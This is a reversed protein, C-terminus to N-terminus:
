FNILYHFSNRLAHRPVGALLALPFFFFSPAAAAAARVCMTSRSGNAFSTFTALNVRSFPAVPAQLTCLTTNQIPNYACAAEDWSFRYMSADGGVPAATLTLAALAPACDAPGAAPVSGDLCRPEVLVAVLSENGEIRRIRPMDGTADGRWAAPAPAPARGFFDRLGLILDVADRVPAPVAAVASAHAARVVARGSARHEFVRFEAGGLARALRAVAVTAVIYEGHRTEAVAEAALAGRVWALVAARARPAPRV